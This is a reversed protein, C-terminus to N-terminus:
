PVLYSWDGKNGLIIPFVTGQGDLQVGNQEMSAFDTAVKSFLANWVRPDDKYM